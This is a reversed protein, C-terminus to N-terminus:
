GTPRLTARRRRRVVTWILVGVAVLVGIPVVAGLVVIAGALIAVSVGVADHGAQALSGREPAPAAAVAGGHLTVAITAFSAQDALLNRQGSLQEIQGRTDSLQQQVAITDPVSSARDMLNQLVTEQAALNRVRADLDVFQATVDEGRESRATVKGFAALRTLATGFQAAPVRLSVTAVAGARDTSSVYGGLLDALGSVSAFRRDLSRGPVRLEISARKVVKTDVRPVAGTSSVGDGTARAVPGAVKAAAVSDAAAGSTARTPATATAAGEEKPSSAGDRGSRVLAVFGGAVLLLVVVPGFWRRM